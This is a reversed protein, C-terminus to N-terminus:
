MYFLVFVIEAYCTAKMYDIAELICTRNHYFMYPCFCVSSIEAPEM